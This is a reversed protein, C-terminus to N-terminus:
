RTNAFFLSGCIAWWHEFWCKSAGRQEHPVLIPLPFLSLVHARFRDIQGGAGQPEAPLEVCGLYGEPPETHSSLTAQLHSLNAHSDLDDSIADWVTADQENSLLFLSMSGKGKVVRPGLDTVRFSLNLDSLSDLFSSMFGTMSSLKGSKQLDVLSVQQQM